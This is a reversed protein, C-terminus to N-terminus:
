DHRDDERPLETKEPSDLGEGALQAARAREERLAQRDARRAERQSEQIWRVFIVAMAYIMTLDGTAWMLAGAWTQDMLPSVGWDREFALYWEEAILRKSGLIMVGLFAHFPMTLIFMVVRIPYPIRYPQPDPGLLPMFFLCGIVVLYIHLLDHHFDNVLTLEYWGTLYLLFPSAMMIGLTLPPFLLVKAFWSHVFALLWKRPKGPLVRLALTVPASAALFVPAVMNFIMHQIMHAWFLVSDYVGLFSFSAVAILGQGSLFGATRWRSWKDGRRKLLHVGYLYAGTMLSLSLVIWWPFTWATFYTWGVLPEILDDPKAHSPLM